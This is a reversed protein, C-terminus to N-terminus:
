HSAEHGTRPGVNTIDEEKLVCDGECGNCYTNSPFNDLLVWEQAEEDWTANADVFIDSSGCTGCLKRVKIM